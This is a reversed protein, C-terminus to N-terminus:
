NISEITNCRADKCVLLIRNKRTKNQYFNKWWISSEVQNGQCTRRGTSQISHCIHTRYITQNDLTIAVNVKKNPVISSLEMYLTKKDDSTSHLNGVIWTDSQSAIKGTFNTSPKSFDTTQAIVLRNFIPSYFIIWYALATGLFPLLLTVAILHKKKVKRLKSM